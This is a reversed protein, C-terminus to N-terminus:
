FLVEVSSSCTSPGLVALQTCLMWHWRGKFSGDRLASLLTDQFWSSRWKACCYLFHDKLVKRYDDVFGFKPLLYLMELNKSATFLRFGMLLFHAILNLYM